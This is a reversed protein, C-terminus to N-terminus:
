TLIEKQQKKEGNPVINIPPENWGFRPYQYYGYFYSFLPTTLPGTM